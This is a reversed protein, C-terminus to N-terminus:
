VAVVTKPARYGGYRTQPDWVIRIHYKFNSFYHLWLDCSWRKERLPPQFFVNTFLRAVAAGIDDKYYEVSM